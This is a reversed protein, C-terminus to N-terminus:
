KKLWFFIDREWTRTKKVGNNVFFTFEDHTIMIILWKNEGEVAYDPPYIKLKMNGNKDFEVMYPKLKKMKKLFNACDEVIDFWEHKDM